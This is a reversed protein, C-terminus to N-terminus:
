YRVTFGVEGDVLAVEKISVDSVRSLMPGRELQNCFSYVRQTEGQVEVEVAGRATNRVWGTVGLAEAQERAFFRYGVGQVRGAVTVALRKVRAGDEGKAASGKEPSAM